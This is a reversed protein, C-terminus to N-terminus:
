SVEKWNTGAKPEAPFRVNGLTREMVRKLLSKVGEAESAACEVLLQDHGNVVLGRHNAYDFPYARVLQQIAENQMDACGSQIPFNTLETPSEGAIFYRRRKHLASELFRASRWAMINRKKWAAMAPHLDWWIKYVREVEALTVNPFLPRLNDDRMLSLTQYIKPPEAGYNLAYTVRKQFVRVEDTVEAPTCRFTGCANAIHVDPGTKADFAHFANILPEDNSLWAIYRLEQAQMDAAVFVNGPYPAFMARLKKPINMLNVPESSGWRGSTKGPRWNTRLRGDSHVPPGGVLGYVPAGNPGTATEIHGTNTGLIKEAERYGILGHIIKESRKDVGLALLDLLTNEDTSPDGSDTHHEDLAPLGLDEYLLKRVQPYSAPNIDRGAVEVFERRLRDSKEQYEAAFKWRAAPDIYIGLASMSRGIRFLESDLAYIHGQNAAILNQEVYPESLFTVAIDFSLYKDLVSDDKVTSHKFDNKWHPVDTYISGLFDLGHPLESTFGISHGVMTDTCHADNLPMGHRWLVISDFAIGNQLAMRLARQFYAAIARSQAQIEDPSLLLHGRVSLPAYIMVEKDTGIGIRRLNCTWADKGDTEVDVAVRHREVALFNDVEAATKPVFYWPDTWTNVGRYLRAAKAVDAHFIPRYRAGEDRMVFAAHPTALGPIGNPLRLPTGRTQMISGGLGVGQLSAGGMLLVFKARSLDMELRPKCCELPSAQGQKKVTRLYRKLDGGDPQCQITNVFAVKSTDMGADTLAQRIERGSAGILTRGHEVETSGPAEAVVVFDADAPITSPVPGRKLGYLPCRWCQAGMM